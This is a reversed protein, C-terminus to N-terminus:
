KGEGNDEEKKRKGFTYAYKDLSAQGIIYGAQIFGIVLITTIMVSTTASIISTTTGEVPQWKSVMMFLFVKWGIDAVLFAIFKKSKLSNSPTGDKQESM